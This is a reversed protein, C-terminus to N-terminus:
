KLKRLRRLLALTAGITRLVPMKSPTPKRDYRLLLPLEVVRPALRGLKILWEAQCAFGNETIMRGPAAFGKRLLGGRYARFGCTYDRVGRLPVAIRFLWSAACGTLRRFFPVGAVVAGRVFRSAIAIDATGEEIPAALRPILAPPHTNDADLTVLVDTERLAGRLADLGTQLAAGLGRNVSHQLVILPIKKRWEDAVRSTGDRSGDDVVWVKYDGDALARAIGNLVDGLASEENYAALLIHIM